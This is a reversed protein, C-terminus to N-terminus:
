QTIVPVFPEFRTEYLKSPVVQVSVPIGVVNAACLTDHFPNIHTTTPDSELAANYQVVFVAIVDHFRLM